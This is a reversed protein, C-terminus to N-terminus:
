IWPASPRMDLDKFSVDELIKRNKQFRVETLKMQPLCFSLRFLTNGSQEPAYISCLRNKIPFPTIEEANVIEETVGQHYKKFEPFEDLYGSWKGQVFDCIGINYNIEELTFTRNDFLEDIDETDLTPELENKLLKEGKSDIFYNKAKSYEGM